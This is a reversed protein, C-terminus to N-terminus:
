DPVLRRVSTEELLEICLFFDDWVPWDPRYFYVPHAPFREDNLPVRFRENNSTTTAVDIARKLLYLAQRRSLPNTHALGLQVLSWFEVGCPWWVVDCRFLEDALATMLSLEVLGVHSELRKKKDDHQQQKKNMRAQVFELCRTVVEDRYAELRSFKELVFIALKVLQREDEAHVLELALRIIAEARDRNSSEAILQDSRTTVLVSLFTSLFNVRKLMSEDDSTSAGLATENLQQHFAALMKDVQKRSCLPLCLKFYRVALDAQRCSLFVDVIRDAISELRRGPQEVSEFLDSVLAFQDALNSETLFDPAELIAIPELKLTNKISKFINKTDTTM